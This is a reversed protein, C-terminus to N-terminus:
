AQRATKIYEVLAARGDETVIQYVRPDRMHGGPANEHSAQQLLILGRRALASETSNSSYAPVSKTGGRQILFWLTSAQAESLKKMPQGQKRRSGTPVM